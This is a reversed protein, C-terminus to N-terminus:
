FGCLAQELLDKFLYRMTMYSVGQREQNRAIPLVRINNVARITHAVPYPVKGYYFETCESSFLDPNTIEWYSRNTSAKANDLRTTPCIRSALVHGRSPKEAMLFFLPNTQVLM